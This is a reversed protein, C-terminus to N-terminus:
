LLLEQAGAALSEKHRFLFTGAVLIHAGADRVKSSTHNNIGGDVMIHVNSEHSIIWDNLEEIKKLASEQFAQGGFGSNVALIDVIDFLGIELLDVIDSIPTELNISIGSRMGKDRIRKALTAVGDASDMAEFQFIISNAGADALAEVYREPREVCLHIDMIIKDSTDRMAKVM